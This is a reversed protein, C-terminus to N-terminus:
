RRQVERDAADYRDGGLEEPEGRVQALVDVQDPLVLLEDLGLEDRADDGRQDRALREEIRLGEGEEVPRREGGTEEREDPEERPQREEEERGAGPDEDGM